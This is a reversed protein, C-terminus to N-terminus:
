FKIDTEKIDDQEPNENQASLGFKGPDSFDPDVTDIGTITNYTDGKTKLTVKLGNKRASNAFNMTDEANKGSATYEANNDLKIHYVVFESKTTRNTKTEKRIGTIMGSTEEPLATNTANEQEQKPASSEQQTSVQKKQPDVIGTEDFFPESEKLRWQPKSKGKRWVQVCYDKIFKAVFKKDWMELGMGLKKCCRMIANSETGECADSASMMDNSEIYEQEGIASSAYKGRIYLAYERCVIITDEENQEGKRKTKVTKQFGGLPRLAWNGMGFADNLMRRYQIHCLYIQGTPKIEIGDLPVSATLKDSVERPIDLTSIGTFIEPAITGIEVIETKALIEGTHKDLVGSVDVKDIVKQMATNAM